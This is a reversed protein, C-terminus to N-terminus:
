RAGERENVYLTRSESLIEAKRREVYLGLVGDRDLQGLHRGLTGMELQVAHAQTKAIEVGQEAAIIQQSSESEARFRASDAESRANMVANLADALEDPPLIDILDVASFSVGYVEGLQKKTAAALRQNLLNRERRVLGYSGAVEHVDDPLALPANNVTPRSLNAIEGRLRCAFLGNIHEVPRALGFLFRELGAPDPSYRLSTELRLVTGDDGMVRQGNEGSLELVQERMSVRIVRQWPWKFHLGPGHTKLGHGERAAAGFTTVVARQGEDVRFQCQRGYWALVVATGLLVGFILM